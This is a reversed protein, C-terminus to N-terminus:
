VPLNHEPTLKNKLETKYGDDVRHKAFIDFYELLLEQMKTIKETDLSSNIWNYQELFKQRDGQKSIDLKNLRQLDEISDFIRKQPRPLAHSEHCNKSTPFWLKESENTLRKSSHQGRTYVQVLQNPEMILKGNTLNNLALM